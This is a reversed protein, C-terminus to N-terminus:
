SVRRIASILSQSNWNVMEDSVSIVEAPTVVAGRRRVGVIPKRYDQAIKIETQIWERHYVWMGSVLIFCSCSRIQEKLLGTLKRRGIETGPDVLPDDKPVSYNRWVFSDDSELLRVIGQYREGYNWAHSIFLNFIRSM